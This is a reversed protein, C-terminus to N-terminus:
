ARDLWDEAYPHINWEMYALDENRYVVRIRFRYHDFIEQGPLLASLPTEEYQLAGVDFGKAALRVDLNFPLNTSIKLIKVKDKPHLSVAEGSVIKQPEGNVTILIYNLRHSTAYTVHWLWWGATLAGIVLLIILWFAPKLFAPKKKKKKM